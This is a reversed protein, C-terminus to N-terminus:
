ALEKAFLAVAERDREPLARIAAALEAALSPRARVASALLTGAVIMGRTRRRRREVSLAAFGLKAAAERQALSRRARRPTQDAPVDPSADNGNLPAGSRGERGDPLDSAMPSPGRDPKEPESSRSDEM